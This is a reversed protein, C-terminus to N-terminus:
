RPVCQTVGWRGRPYNRVKVGEAALTAKIAAVLRGHGTDRFFLYWSKANM